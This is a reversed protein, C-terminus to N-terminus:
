KASGDDKKNPKNRLIDFYIGTSFQNDGFYHYDPMTDKSALIISISWIGISDAIFDDYPIYKIAMKYKNKSSIINMSGILEVNRKGHDIHCSSSYTISDCCVYEGVFYAIFSNIMSVIAIKGIENVANAAFLLKMQDVDHKQLASFFSEICMKIDKESDGVIKERESLIPRMAINLFFNEIRTKIDMQMVECKM